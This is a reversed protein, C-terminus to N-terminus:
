SLVAQRAAAGDQLGRQEALGLVQGAALAAQWCSRAISYRSCWSTSLRTLPQALWPVPRRMCAATNGPLGAAM